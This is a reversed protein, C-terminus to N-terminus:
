NKNNARKKYKITFIKEDFKEVNRKNDKENTKTKHTLFKCNLLNVTIFIQALFYLM